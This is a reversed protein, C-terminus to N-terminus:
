VKPKLIKNVRNLAVRLGDYDSESWDFVDLLKHEHLFLFLSTTLDEGRAAETFTLYLRQNNERAKAIGAKRSFNTEHCVNWSVAVMGVDYLIEFILTIGHLNSISNDKDFGRVYRVVEAQNEM